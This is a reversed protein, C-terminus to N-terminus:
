GHAQDSGDDALLAALEADLDTDSAPAADADLAGGSRDRAVRRLILPYGVFGITAFIFWQVAYSRHPGEDLAPLPVPVLVDADEPVSSIRQLAVPLVSGGLATEVADRRLCASGIPAGDDDTRVGCSREDWPLVTGTVAVEGEPPVPPDIVGSDFGQFGRSVAVVSGDALRLPTVVWAGPLGEHSRNDILVDADPEYTGVATAQRYRLDEVENGDAGAVLEEVPAAPEQTRAAVVANREVKEDHRSLQWFGLSVFLVILSAAFLHSLLWAPRFAFRYM